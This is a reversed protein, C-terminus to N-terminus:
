KDNLIPNKLSGSLSCLYYHPQPQLCLGPTDQVLLCTKDGQNKFGKSATYLIYVSLKSVLVVTSRLERCREARPKDQPEQQRGATHPDANQHGGFTSSCKFTRKILALICLHYIHLWKQSICFMNRRSQYKGLPPFLGAELVFTFLTSIQYLLSTHSSPPRPTPCVSDM